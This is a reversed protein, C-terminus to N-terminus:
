RSVVHEISAPLLMPGRSLFACNDIKGKDLDKRREKM